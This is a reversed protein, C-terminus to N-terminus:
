SELWDVYDPSLAKYSKGTRQSYQLIFTKLDNSLQQHNEKNPANLKIKINELRRMLGTNTGAPIRNGHQKIFEDIDNHLRTKINTPLSGINQFESSYVLGVSVDIWKNFQDSLDFSYKLFDVFGDISLASLTADFELHWNHKMFYFINTELKQWNTGMRILEAKEKITELSGTIRFKKIYPKYQELKTIDYDKGPCLNTHIVVDVHKADITKLLELFNWFKPSVTPEGGLLYFQKIDKINSRVYNHFKELSVDKEEDTLHWKQLLTEYKRTTDTQLKKYPGHKRLHNYWTTSKSNDCYSCMFNCLSDFTVCLTEPVLTLSKFVSTDYGRKTFHLNFNQRESVGGEEETKWCGACGKPKEGKLMQQREDITNEVNIIDDTELNIKGKPQVLHCNSVLGEGIYLDSWLWKAM